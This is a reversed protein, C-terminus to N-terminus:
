QKIVRSTYSLGIKKTVFIAVATLVAYASIIIVYSLIAFGVTSMDHLFPRNTQYFYNGGTLQNATLAAAFYLTFGIIANKYGKWSPRWGYAVVAFIPILVTILHNIMYSLGSVHTFNYVQIPYFLSILAFVSYYIIPDLIALKPKVLFIITLASAVRCLQLPLGESWFLPTFFAYWGYLFFVQQIALIALFFRRFNNKQLTVYKHNKCFLFVVIFCFALYLIHSVGYLQVFPADPSLFNQFM